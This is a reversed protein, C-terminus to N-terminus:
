PAGSGADHVLSWSGAAKQAMPGALDFHGTSHLEQLSVVVVIVVVVKSSQLPANSGTLSHPLNVKALQSSRTIPLATFFRQGTRQLEHVVLVVVTEVVVVVVMVEEVVVNDEVVTVMEDVVVAVVVVALVVVVVVVAVILVVVMLVVVAVCVVVVCVVVVGFQLPTTSGGSIQSMGPNVASSHSFSIRFPFPGPPAVLRSDSAQGTRQPVQRVTSRHM